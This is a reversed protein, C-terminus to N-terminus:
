AVLPLGPTVDCTKKMLEVFTSNIDILIANRGLELAQKGTTGSGGFPDIVTDGINSWSLILDHALWKPMMAPHDVGDCCDGQGRTLGKWVNGRMGFETIINRRREGMTGDSERLTNKGFTKTGAWANPKDRLPNFCRPAGKSLIFVYEFMQHYRVKEPQGFNSREYIMTDHIRLGCQERFFIKQKSSSLTESGDVVSDGVNWCIVGGPVMVRTLETAIGEFNWSHGGYKRLDDYPPSTVCCQVSESPFKQLETLADGCIIDITPLM